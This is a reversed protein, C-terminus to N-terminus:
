NRNSNEYIKKLKEKVQPLSCRPVQVLHMGHREYFRKYDGELRSARNGDENLRSVTEPNNMVLNDSNVIDAFWWFPAAKNTKSYRYVDEADWVGYRGQEDYMGAEEIISKHHYTFENCMNPYFDIKINGYDITTNPTRNFPKGSGDSTSVFCFYKLGTKKSANIYKDFVNKDKLVMDDEIIFIHECGRALLYRMCDNRCVSPYHNSCHQIVDAKDYSGNYRDGGNVIVLEDINDHPISEYLTKLYHETNYTTIGVGIKERM